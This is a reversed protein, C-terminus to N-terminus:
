GVGGRKRAKNIEDRIRDVAIKSDKQWIWTQWEVRAALWLKSDDDEDKSDIPPTASGKGTTSYKVGKELLLQPPKPVLM